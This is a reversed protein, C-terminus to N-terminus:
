VPREPSAPVCCALEGPGCAAAVSCGTRKELRKRDKKPAELHGLAHAVADRITRVVPDPADALRYYVWLGKRRTDVLGAKRLYALHRSVKSQPLRLSDHLDCVCVEGALLLGLLRLRTADALAKLVHEVAVIDPRM